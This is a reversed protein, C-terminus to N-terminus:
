LGKRRFVVTALCLVIGVYVAAYVIALGVQGTSVPLGHAAASRVDFNQLNPLLIYAVHLAKAGARALLPPDPVDVLQAGLRDLDATVHGAVAVVFAFVAGEVPHAAVSFFVSIATVVCLELAVLLLAEVIALSPSGGGLAFILLFGAGMAATAVVLVAALGLYKGVIFGGRGIPRALVAHVTRREVEQAVIGTGLVISAITGLVVIASLSLDAVIKNTRTQEDGAVWAFLFSAAAAALTAGVLAHLVRNRASERFALRAVALVPAFSSV